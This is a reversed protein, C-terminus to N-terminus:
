DAPGRGQMAQWRLLAQDATAQALVRSDAMIERAHEFAIPLYGTPKTHLVADVALMQADGATHFMMFTSRYGDMLRQFPNLSHLVRGARGPFLPRSAAEARPPPVINSAIVLDAGENLIPGDPVNDSIGGDVYRRWKKAVPDHATTPGFVTPFSGSATTGLALYIGRIATTEAAAIDCAVPLFVTDLDELWRDGVDYKVNLGIFSSNLIAGQVAWTLRPGADVLKRLGEEGAACYYAGVMSGFSVGAVIDIPIDRALLEEILAVHAYGWAGGGGLAIGVMRDSVHRAWKDLAKRNAPAWDAIPKVLDAQTLRVRAAGVPLVHPYVSGFEPMLVSEAVPIADRAGDLVSADGPPRLSALKTAHAIWDRRVSAQVQHADLLLYDVKTRLLAAFASQLFVDPEQGANVHIVGDDEAAPVKKPLKPENAQVHLVAVRDRHNTVLVRALALALKDQPWGDPGHIAVLEVNFDDHATAAAHLSELEPHAASYLARRFAASEAMMKHLDTALIRALVSAEGAIVRSRTPQALVVATEGFADGPRLQRRITPKGQADQGFDQLRGSRVVYFAEAPLGEDYVVDGQAFSVDTARTALVTLQRLPVHGFLASRRLAAVLPKTHDLPHSM